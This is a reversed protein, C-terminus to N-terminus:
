VDIIVINYLIFLLQKMSNITQQQIPLSAYVMTNQKSETVLLKYYPFWLVLWYDISQITNCICYQILDHCHYFQSKIVTFVSMATMKILNM